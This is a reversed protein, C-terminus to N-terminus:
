LMEFDDADNLVPFKQRFSKQREFDLEVITMSEKNEEPAAVTKGYADIVASAGNYRCTPDNGVRNVGIVYSQNEIARAQLLTKWVSIRNEPWSAVYICADYDQHNNRSFVPFRLDYCVLILFRVGRFEVVVRKRGAMLRKHEGGYTFLHKKDYYSGSGDPNIFYMRNHFGDDDRIIISGCIAANLEHATRRMWALSLSDATEYADNPDVAFGTSWMEPLVYLDAKAGTHILTEAKQINAEPNAWEIDMQLLAVKM